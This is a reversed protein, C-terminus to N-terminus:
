LFFPRVHLIKKMKEKEMRERQAIFRYHDFLTEIRKRNPTEVEPWAGSGMVLDPIGVDKSSWKCYSCVLYQAKKEIMQTSETESPVRIMFTRSTLTNTCYPCLFCSACRYLLMTMKQENFLKIM